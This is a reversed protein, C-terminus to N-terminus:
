QQYHRRELNLLLHWFTEVTMNDNESDKTSFHKLHLLAAVLSYFFDLRFKFRWYKRLRWIIKAIAKELILAWKMILM